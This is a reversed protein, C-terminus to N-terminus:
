VGSPARGHKPVWSNRPKQQGNPQFALSGDTSIISFTTILIPNTLSDGQYHGLTPRPATFHFNFFVNEEEM